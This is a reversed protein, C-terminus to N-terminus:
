NARWERAPAQGGLRPERGTARFSRVGCTDLLVTDRPDVVSKRQDQATAASTLFPCHTGSEILAAGSTVAKLKPEEAPAQTMDVWPRLVASEIAPPRTERCREVLLWVEDDGTGSGNLTVGPLGRLSHEHLEFLGHRGTTTAPTSRLRASQQAFEILSLVRELELSM